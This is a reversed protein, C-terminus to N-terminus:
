CVGNVVGLLEADCVNNIGRCKRTGDDDREGVDVDADKAVILRPGVFEEGARFSSAFFHPLEGHVVFIPFENFAAKGVNLVDAAAFASAGDGARPEDPFEGAVSRPDVEVDCAGGPVVVSLWPERLAGSADGETSKDM